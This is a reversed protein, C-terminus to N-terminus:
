TLAPKVSGLHGLSRKRRGLPKSGKTFVPKVFGLSGERNQARKRTMGIKRKKKERGSWLDVNLLSCQEM